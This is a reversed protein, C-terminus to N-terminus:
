FMGVWLGVLYWYRSEPKLYTQACLWGSEWWWTQITLRRSPRRWHRWNNPPSPQAVEGKNATSPDM